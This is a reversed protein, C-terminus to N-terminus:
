YRFAREILPIKSLVWTIVWCIICLGCWVIFAQLAGNIRETLLFCKSFYEHLLFVGFCHKGISEIMKEHKFLHARFALYISISWLMVLINDYCFESNIKGLHKFCLLYQYSVAVITTLIVSAWLYKENINKFDIKGLYYGLLFYFMWTWLRYRQPVNSQLFYGGGLISVMSFVDIMICVTALVIILKKLNKKIFGFGFVLFTYIAIFTFLFWFPVIYHADICKIGNKIAAGVSDKMIILSFFASIIGWTVLIRVINLIKKKYYEVSFSDRNLILYGNVMFFVPMAFRSGYYLVPNFVTGSTTCRQTHLAVVAVICIIKLLDIGVDRQKM